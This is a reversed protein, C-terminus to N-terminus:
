YLEEEKRNLSNRPVFKIPKLPLSEPTISMDNLTFVFSQSSPAEQRHQKQLEFTVHLAQM